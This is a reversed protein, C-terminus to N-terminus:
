MRSAEVSGENNLGLDSPDTGEDGFVYRWAGSISWVYLLFDTWRALFGVNDDGEAFRDDKALEELDSFTAPAEDILDKNYFMVVAEIM